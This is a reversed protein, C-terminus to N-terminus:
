LRRLDPISEPNSFFHPLGHIDAARKFREDTPVGLVEFDNNDGARALHSLRGHELVKHILVCLLTHLARVHREVVRRNKLRGFLIGRQEQLAIMGRDKDVLNLISRLKQRIDLYVDEDKLDTFNMKGELLSKVVRPRILWKGNDKLTGMRLAVKRKRKLANIMKM